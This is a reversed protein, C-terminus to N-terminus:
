RGMVKRAAKDAKRVCKRYDRYLELPFTRKGLVRFRLQGDPTLQSIEVRAQLIDYRGPHFFTSSKRRHEKHAIAFRTDGTIGWGRRAFEYAAAEVPTISM